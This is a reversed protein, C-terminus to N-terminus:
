KFKLRGGLMVTIGPMEYGAYYEYKRNLLNNLSVFVEGEEIHWAKYQLSYALRLNVLHIDDLRSSDPAETFSATRQLSGAYLGYLMQYDGNLSFDKLFIWKFGASMSFRPTYPMRKAEEGDEGKASIDTIWTGGAFFDLSKLYLKDQKFALSGGFEAGQIRFYSVSAANGPVQPGQVTIRDRGDDYFYAANVSARSKWKYSLGGELHHVTEPRAEKLSDTDPDDSNMFGQINAPAPYIIGRAYNLNLELSGLGFVLGAQPSLSNDWLSHVYARFGGSPILYIKETLIFYQSVGLYPSFLTMLPFDTIVSASITNHDENATKNMDLDIGISIDSGKWFSFVEKARLGWANLNQRSWDGPNVLDDDLWRFDTFNYYLKIYGLANDYENNAAATTFLTETKFTSLIDSKSQAIKPPQLTEADVFNGLLRLNWYANLWLGLNLYYSQQYAGSHVVHGETSVWSQAAFVDFRGKRLGFSANEGFTLYSGGSFGTEAEWGQEAMYRPSVNINAYGAGFSSPQPYKYIEVSEAAFVPISDAMSQGYILGFRPVDDFSVTTDLSPHTYGRGRVYVSSGTNTGIINRKSFVVGPVDRLADLIDLSGQERIQEGSVENHQAGFSDTEPSVPAAPPRQEEVTLGEGEMLIDWEGDDGNEFGEANRSEAEAGSSQPAGTEQAPSHPAAATFILFAQLAALYRFLAKM